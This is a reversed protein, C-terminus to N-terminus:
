LVRRGPSVDERYRAKIERIRNIAASVIASPDDDCKPIESNVLYMRLRRVEAAATWSTDNVGAFVRQKWRDVIASVDVAEGNSIYKVSGSEDRRYLFVAFRVDEPLAGALADAVDHSYDDMEKQDIKPAIPTVGTSDEAM